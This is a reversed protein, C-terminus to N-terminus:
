KWDNRTTFNEIDEITDPLPQRSTEPLQAILEAAVLLLIGLIIPFIASNNTESAVAFTAVFSGIQAMIYAMAQGVNRVITPNLDSTFLWLTTSSAAAGILTLSALLVRLGPLVSILFMCVGSLINSVILTTRCGFPFTAYACYVIGPLQYFLGSAMHWFVNSDHQGIFEPISRLTLGSVFWNFCICMTNERIIQTRILNVPNGRSNNAEEDIVKSVDSEISETPRRNRNAAEVLVAVAESKRQATILWRPSEPLTWCYAAIVASPVSMVLLLHRWSRLHYAFLPLTVQGLYLPLQYLAVVLERWENGTIEM